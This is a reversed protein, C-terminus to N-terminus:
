RTPGANNTFAGSWVRHKNGATQTMILSHEYDGLPLRVLVDQTIRVSFFGNPADVIVVEGTGTSIHLLAVDDEAHRRLMMEMQVGTLNIPAGSAQLYQFMRYFDADNTVTINVTAM